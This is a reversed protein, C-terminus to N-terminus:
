DEYWYELVQATAAGAPDSKVYIRESYECSIAFWQGPIMHKMQSFPMDRNSIAITETNSLRAEFYVTRNQVEQVVETRANTVVVTNNTM